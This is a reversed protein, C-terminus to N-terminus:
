GQTEPPTSGTPRNTVEPEDGRLVEIERQLRRIVDNARRLREACAAVITKFYPPVTAYVKDLGEFDVQTVEVESIAVAAASRPSRDFFSLEGLVEGSHLTALEIAVGNMARKQVSVSGSNILYMATSPDNENFIVQGPAFKKVKSNSM